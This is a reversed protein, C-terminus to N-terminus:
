HGKGFLAEVIVWVFSGVIVVVCYIGVVSFADFNQWSM